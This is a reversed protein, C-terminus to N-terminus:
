LEEEEFSMAVPAPPELEVEPEETKEEKKMSKEQEEVLSDAFDQNAAEHADALEPIMDKVAADLVDNYEMEDMQYEYFHLLVEDWLVVKGELVVHLPTHFKESYWRCVKRCFGVESHTLHSSLAELQIAQYDSLKKDKVARM